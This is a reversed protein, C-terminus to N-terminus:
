LESAFFSRLAVALLAKIASWRHSLWLSSVWDRAMRSARSGASKPWIAARVAPYLASSRDMRGLKCLTVPHQSNLKPLFAHGVKSAMTVEGERRQVFRRRRLTNHTEEGKERALPELRARLWRFALREAQRDM